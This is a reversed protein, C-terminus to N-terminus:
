DNVPNVGDCRFGVLVEEHFYDDLSKPKGLCPKMIAFLSDKLYDVIMNKIPHPCKEGIQGVAKVNRIRFHNHIFYVPMFFEGLYGFVRKGRTYPSKRIYKECEFLISFLWEAYADYADKKCVLMNKGHIHNGWLYNIITQEYDPYLKRMVM